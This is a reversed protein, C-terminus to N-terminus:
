AACSAAHDSYIDAGNLRDWFRGFRSCFGGRLAEFKEFEVFALRLLQAVFGAVINFFSYM